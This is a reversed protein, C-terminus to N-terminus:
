SEASGQPLVRQRLHQPANERFAQLSRQSQDAAVLRTMEEELLPLQARRSRGAFPLADPGEQLSASPDGVLIEGPSQLRDRPLPARAQPSDEHFFAEDRSGDQVGLHPPEDLLDD